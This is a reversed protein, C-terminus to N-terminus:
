GRRMPKLDFQGRSALDVDANAIQEPPSLEPHSLDWDRLSSIRITGYRHVPIENKLVYGIIQQASPKDLSQLRNTAAEAITKDVGGRCGTLLTHGREVIIQGLRAVFSGCIDAHSLVNNLSGVVLIKM